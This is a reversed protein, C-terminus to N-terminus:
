LDIAEKVYRVLEDSGRELNFAAVDSGQPFVVMEAGIKDVLMEGFELGAVKGTKPDASDGDCLAVKRTPGDFMYSWHTEWRLNTGLAVAPLGYFTAIMANVEGEVLYIIDHGRTLIGANFMPRYMGSMCLYKSHHQIEKCEEGPLHTCRFAINAYGAPTYYPIAIRGVYREHTEDVAEEVYGLKWREAIEPVLGRAALYDSGTSCAALQDHYLHVAKALSERQKPSPVLSTLKTAM